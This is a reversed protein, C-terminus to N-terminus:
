PGGILRSVALFTAAATKERVTPRRNRVDVYLAALKELATEISEIGIDIEARLDDATM